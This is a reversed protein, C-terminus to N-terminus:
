GFVGVTQRSLALLQGQENWVKADTFVYGDAAHDTEAQYALWENVDPRNATQPFELNWSMTSAAAPLKLQQLVTCPWADILGILHADNFSKLPNKFRMWGQLHSKKSHMFPLRGAQLSLDFHQLFKPVVKPVQPLFNAKRPLDMTSPEVSKIKIKSERDVGFCAQAIVATKGDQKVEAMLQTASRGSRLLKVDVTVKSDVMLPGIFSLNLYRIPRHETPNSQRSIQQMRHFILAATLGGYVTRGQAWQAPVMLSHDASQDLQHLLDDFGAVNPKSKLLSIM